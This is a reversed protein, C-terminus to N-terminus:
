NGSYYSGIIKNLVCGPYKESHPLIKYASTMNAYLNTATMKLFQQLICFPVNITDIYEM